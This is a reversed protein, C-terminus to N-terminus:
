IHSSEKIRHTILNELSSSDNQNELRREEGIIVLYFSVKTSSCAIDQGKWSIQLSKWQSEKQKRSSEQKM